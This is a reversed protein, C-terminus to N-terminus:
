YNFHLGKEDLLADNSLGSLKSKKQFQYPFQSVAFSRLDEWVDDMKDTTWKPLILTTPIVRKYGENGGKTECDPDDIAMLEYALLATKYIGAEKAASTIQEYRFEGPELGAINSLTTPKTKEEVSADVPNGPYYDVACIVECNVTNYPKDPKLVKNVVLPISKEEFKEPQMPIKTDCKDNRPIKTCKIKDASTIRVGVGRKVTSASRLSDAPSSLDSMEPAEVSLQLDEHQGSWGCSTPSKESLHTLARILRKDFKVISYGVEPSTGNLWSYPAGKKSGFLKNFDTWAKDKESVSRLSTTGFFGVTQILGTLFYASAFFLFLV